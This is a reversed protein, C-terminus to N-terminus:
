DLPHVYNGRIGVTLVEGDGDPVADLLVYLADGDNIAFPFGAPQVVFTADGADLVEHIIETYSGGTSHFVRVSCDEVSDSVITIMLELINFDRFAVYRGLIVDEDPNVVTGYSFYLEFRDRVSELVTVRADIADIADNIITLFADIEAETYYIDGIEGVIINNVINDVETTTYFETIDDANDNILTILSDVDLDHIHDERAVVPSTGTSPTPGVGVASVVQSPVPLAEGIYHLDRVEHEPVTMGPKFLDRVRM